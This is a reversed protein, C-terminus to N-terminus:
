GAVRNGTFKLGPYHEAMWADFADLRKQWGIVALLVDSGQQLVAHDRFIHHMHRAHGRDPVTRNRRLVAMPKGGDVM